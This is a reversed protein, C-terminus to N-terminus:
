RGAAHRRHVTRQRQQARERDFVWQQGQRVQGLPGLLVLARHQPQQGRQFERMQHPALGIAAETKARGHTEVYGVVVDTGRELRRHGENLMAFTKGVGPAAGLYVRLRGRESRRHEVDETQM